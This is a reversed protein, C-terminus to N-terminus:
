RTETVKNLFNPQDPDHGRARALEEAMNYFAQIAVIPDLCPHLADPLPLCVDTWDCLGDGRLSQPIALMISAGLQHFYKLSDISNQLAKDGQIFTLLPVDNALLALPGHRFSAISYAEAHLLSTEKLKLASEEAIALGYGRALVMVNTQQELRDKAASWDMKQAQQLYEPLEDLALKMSEDDALFTLLQLFATLSTVFSKTAAVAIEPGALLPVVVDAIDALPSDTQNVFAISRAGRQKALSLMDCLDPSRGSQSIAVVWAQDLALSSNYLSAISPSSSAVPWGLYTELGYKVFTAACDSSGRGVTLVFRPPHQRLDKALESLLDKNTQLQKGVVEPIATIEQIMHSSTM